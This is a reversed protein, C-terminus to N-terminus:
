KENGKIRADLLATLEKLMHVTDAAHGQAYIENAVTDLANGQTRWSRYAANYFRRIGRAALLGPDIHTKAVPKHPGNAAPPPISGEDELGFSNEMGERASGAVQDLWDEPPFGSLIAALTLYPLRARDALELAASPLRLIELLQYIRRQKVKVIPELYAVLEETLRIELAQRFYAYTDESAPQPPLKGARELILGAVGRAQGVATPTELHLNELLQRARSPGPVIVVRLLPEPFM